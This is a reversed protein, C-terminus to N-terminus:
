IKIVHNRDIKKSLNELLLIHVNLNSQYKVQGSPLIQKDSLYVYKGIESSSLASIKAAKRIVYYQLKDDRIKDDITM